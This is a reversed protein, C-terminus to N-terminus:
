EEGWIVNDTTNDLIYEVQGIRLDAWQAAVGGSADFIIIWYSPWKV